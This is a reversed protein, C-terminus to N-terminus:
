FTINLGVLIIRSQPYTDYDVGPAINILTNDRERSFQSVEPDYGSYDTLTLLNEGTVYARLNSLNLKRCFRKSFDYSLTVSKLRIFSGDEVFRSSLLSNHDDGYTAKPIDTVQGPTKWRDSVTALQNYEDELGETGIRTANFIDNGQVGHIFVNLSFNKYSFRNTLGFSFDPNADGIITRDGESLDGSDDLDRYKAMGTQPDVGDFIFGQFLGLPEGEQAIAVNGRQTIDGVRITGDDLSIVKSKNFYINFDTDWEFEGVLNSSNVQFEFGKNEMEGINKTATNSPIGVSAPIPRDLLMDKTKKIYYDSTIRLRSDFMTMDIGIDTQQTVEWKLNKNEISTPWTGPVVAGGSTYPANVSVTGYSAYNGIQDNGVEGWGARIKLDDFFDNDPLFEEQSLRWGVSVSPFYGWVNNTNSFVSSADARINATVLYKDDYDYNLRGIIGINSRKTIYSTGDRTAAATVIKVASSGFTRGEINMGKGEMRSAVFGGMLKMDHKGFTRNYNITNELIWYDRSHNEMIAQGGLLRGWRSTYPDLWQDRGENRREFGFMSRVKLGEIINAEVYANGNFRYNLWVNDHRLVIGVPSEIDQIFPHISLTGDDNYVDMVPAGTLASISPGQISNEDVPRSTTRNFSLSTGAKFIKSIKHDINAKFSYRKLDNNIVVGEQDMWSGSLYFSTKENGGRVSAHYNQTQASRFVKDQWYNDYPYMNWDVSLGMETMLEKYQAANLVDLKNAVDSFSFYTNLSVKTPTNGGRKTTILVVGNAGSAGYIAASSADKLISLNEIDSPNIQDISETPVGDVIYLPESGATITSTGRIRIRVKSQPQGSPRIVQVGSAKGQLSHAFETQPRSELENSTVLSVSGTVDIKRQTGYGIAVVEEIGIADVELTVNITTQNGVLIEQTQMGVFSFVLIDNNSVDPINYNGKANSITGKTTGKIFVTVGPLPLGDQDVIKGEITKSQQITTKDSISSLVIQRGDIKYMVDTNDFIKDLIEVVKAKTAHVNIKRNVDVVSRSYLFYFESQDEIEQLVSEVTINSLSLSLSETQAYSNEAFAYTISMLLLICTIKMYKFTKRIGHCLWGPIYLKLKKEM